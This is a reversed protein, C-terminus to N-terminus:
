PWFLGFFRRSLVTPLGSKSACFLILLFQLRKRDRVFNFVSLLLFLFYLGAVVGAVAENTRDSGALMKDIFDNTITQIAPSQAVGSDAM